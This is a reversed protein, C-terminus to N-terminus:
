PYIQLAQAIELPSYIPLTAQKFDKANRTIIAAVGIQRASEYLVADEFDAFGTALAAELVARNVPAIEFLNLLKQIEQQAQPAGVVKTALYDITTVTTACLYGTLLGNEISAFLQKAVAVYPERALVVDLIINTDLLVKV